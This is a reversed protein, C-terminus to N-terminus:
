RLGFLRAFFYLIAHFFRVIRGWFSTGHDVGDWPCTHSGGSPSDPDTPETPNAPDTPDTPDAPTEAAAKLEAYRAEAATLVAANEVLAKQADTLVAYADAVADIKAKCDDTYEVEGIADILGIVEDAAARDAAARDAAEAAAKREADVQQCVTCTFREDGTEGYTHIGTAAVPRTETAPCGVCTRTEEGEDVCTPATTVAWDGFSHVATVSVTAELFRDANDVTDGLLEGGRVTVADADVSFECGFDAALSFGLPYSQGGTFTGTYGKATAPDIWWAANGGDKANPAYHAGAPVAIAPPDTQDTWPEEPHLTGTAAGCVPPTVTDCRRKPSLGM